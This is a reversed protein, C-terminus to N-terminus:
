AWPVRFLTMLRAWPSGSHKGVTKLWVQDRTRKTHNAAANGTQSARLDRYMAQSPIRLKSHHVQMLISGPFLILDLIAGSYCRTVPTGARGAPDEHSRRRLDLFLLVSKVM